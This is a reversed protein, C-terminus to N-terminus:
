SVKCKNKHYRLKRHKKAKIAAQLDGESKSGLTGGKMELDEEEEVEEEVELEYSEDDEQTISSSTSYREQTLMVSKGEPEVKICVGTSVNSLKREQESGTDVSLQGHLPPLDVGIERYNGGDHELFSTVGKSFSLSGFSALSLKEALKEKMPNYTLERPSTPRKPPSTVSIRRRSGYSPTRNGQFSSQSVDPSIIPSSPAIIRMNKYRVFSPLRKQRIFANSEDAAEEWDSDESDESRDLAVRISFTESLEHDEGPEVFYTQQLDPLGKM